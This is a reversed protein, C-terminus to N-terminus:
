QDRAKKSCGATHAAAVVEAPDRSITGAPADIISQLEDHWSQCEPADALLSLMGNAQKGYDKSPERAPPAPTGATEEEADDQAPAPPAQKSCAAALFTLAVLGAFATKNM